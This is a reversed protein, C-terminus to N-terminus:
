GRYYQIYQPTGGTNNYWVGFTNNFSTSDPPILGGTPTTANLSAGTIPTGASISNINTYTLSVLNYTGSVNYMLMAETNSVPILMKAYPNNATGLVSTTASFLTSATGATITSGSYTFGVAFVTGSTNYTVMGTTGGLGTVGLTFPSFASGQSYITVPTGATISTGSITLLCLKVANTSGNVSYYVVAVTTSNLVFYSAYFSNTLTADSIVTALSSIASITIASTTIINAQLGTGTVAQLYISSTPTLNYVEYPETTNAATFTSATGRSVTTGGNLAIAQISMTSGTSYYANLIVNYLNTTNYGLNCVSIPTTNNKVSIVGSTWDASAGSNQYGNSSIYSSDFGASTDTYSFFITNNYVWTGSWNSPSSAPNALTVGFAISNLGSFTGWTTVGPNASILGTTISTQSSTQYARYAIGIQTSSYPILTGQLDTNSINAANGSDIVSFGNSDWTIVNGSIILSSLYVQGVGNSSNPAGCAIAYKTGYQAIKYVSRVTGSFTVPLSITYETNLTVSGGTGLTVTRAGLTTATTGKMYVMLATTSNISYFMAQAPVTISTNFATNLVFSTGLTIDITSIFQVNSSNMWSILALTPSVYFMNFSANSALISAASTNSQIGSLTTPNILSIANNANVACMGLVLANSSNLVICDNQNSNAGTTVTTGSASVSLTGSTNIVYYSHVLTSNNAGTVLFSTTSIASISCQGTNSALNVSNTVSSFSGSPTIIFASQSTGDGSAAYYVSGNGTTIAPSTTGISSIMLNYGNLMQYPDTDTPPTVNVGAAAMYFRFTSFAM